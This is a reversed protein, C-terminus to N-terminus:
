LDQILPDCAGVINLGGGNGQTHETADPSVVLTGFHLNGELSDVFAITGVIAEHFTDFPVPPNDLALNILKGTCSASPNPTAAGLAAPVSMVVAVVVAVGFILARKRM